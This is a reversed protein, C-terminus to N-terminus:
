LGCTGHCRADQREVGGHSWPIHFVGCTRERWETYRGTGGGARRRDHRLRSAFSAQAASESLTRMMRLLLEMDARNYLSTDYELVYEYEDASPEFVLLTLPVKATDLSLGISEMKLASGKDDLAIGGEYVFM